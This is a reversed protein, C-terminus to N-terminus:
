LYGGETIAYKGLAIQEDTSKLFRIRRLPLKFVCTVREGQHWVYEPNQTNNLIWSMMNTPLTIPSNQMLKIAAAQAVNWRTNDSVSVSISNKITDFDPSSLVYDIVMTHKPM